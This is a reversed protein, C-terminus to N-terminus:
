ADMVRTMPADNSLTAALTTSCAILALSRAIALLAHSGVPNGTPLARITDIVQTDPQNQAFARLGAPMTSVTVYASSPYALFMIPFVMGNAAEPSGALIGIVAAVWSLALIFLVLIAIAVPWWPAPSLLKVFRTLSHISVGWPWAQSLM